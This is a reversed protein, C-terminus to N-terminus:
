LVGEEKLCDLINDFIDERSRVQVKMGSKYFCNVVKWKKLNSIEVGQAYSKKMYAINNEHIDKEEGNKLSREKMHDEIIDPDMKMYITTDAKPLNCIEYEYKEMFNIYELKEEQTELKCTQHILNSGTYRDFVIWYGEKIKSNIDIKKLYHYRNLAYMIGACYPNVDNVDGYKGALYSKIFLASEDDYLPFPIYLVKETINNKIYEVLKKANTEKFSHDTGEFVIIKGM